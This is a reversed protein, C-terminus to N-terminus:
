VILFILVIKLLIFHNEYYVKQSNIFENVIVSKNLNSM